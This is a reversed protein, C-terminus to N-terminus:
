RVSLLCCIERCKWGHVTVIESNYMFSQIPSGVNSSGHMEVSCLVIDM